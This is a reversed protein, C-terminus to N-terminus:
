LTVSSLARPTDRDESQRWDPDFDIASHVMGGWTTPAPAHDVLSPVHYYVATIPRVLRPMRLDPNLNLNHWNRDIYRATSTSLLLAQSGWVWRPDAVQYNESENRMVYPLGPNYLSAYFGANYPVGRLLRWSHVNHTFWGGFIVDDELLLVYPTEARAARAIMRKWTDWIRGLKSDGFEQDLIIEPPSDWGSAALSALTQALTVQREECSMVFASVHM